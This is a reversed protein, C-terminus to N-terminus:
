RKARAQCFGAGAPAAPLFDRQTRFRRPLNREDPLAAGHLGDVPLDPPHGVDNGGAAPM